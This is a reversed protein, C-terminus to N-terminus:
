DLLRELLRHVERLSAPNMAVACCAAGAAVLWASRFRAEAVPAACLLRDVRASLDENAEVLSAMLPPVTVNSQLRAVRVLAAALTASQVADGDVARDDAAWEAYKAWAKELERLRSFVPPALRILLRKLNDRSRLHANEHRLVVALEGSSLQELAQSSILLRPRLIGALALVGNGPLIWVTQCDISAERGACNRLFRFSSALAHLAQYLAGGALWAGLIAASLCAFGIEESGAPPEFLLYAPLCFAVVAVAAIAAPLFRLALVFRAARVPPMKEARRLAAPVLLAVLSGLLVALAFFVASSLLLLRVLYSGTM